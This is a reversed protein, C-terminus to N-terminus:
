NIKSSIQLLDKKRKGREKKPAKHYDLVKDVYQNAVGEGYEESLYETQARFGEQEFKNDLYNGDSASQTPGDGFCQQLVHMIEHVMYHDDSEFDDDNLLSYNFYIIGHDTRASVDLDAFTMPIYDILNIDVGAEEFMGKVTDSKKIRQRVKDILELLEKHTKHKLSSGM